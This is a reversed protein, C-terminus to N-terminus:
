LAPTGGPGALQLSAPIAHRVLSLDPPGRHQLRHVADVKSITRRGGSELLLLDAFFPNLTSSGSGPFGGGGLAPASQHRHCRDGRPQLELVDAHVPRAAMRGDCQGGVSEQTYAGIWEIRRSFVNVGGSINKGFLYPKTYGLNIDRLRSGNQISVSMTEGRGLFNATSYSMQGFFGDFQSVGAGFTLQNLNAETLNFILDVQNEDEELPAIDVAEEEM